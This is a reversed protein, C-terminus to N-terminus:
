EAPPAAVPIPWRRWLVAHWIIVAGIFNLGAIGVWLDALPPPADAPWVASVIGKLVLFYVVTLVVATLLLYWPTQPGKLRAPYAEMLLGATLSAAVVSGAWANVPAGIAHMLLMLLYGGGLTVVTAAAVNALKNTIGALFNGGLIMFGLMQVIVVCLLFDVFELADFPGSGIRLGIAEAAGAPVQGPQDGIMLTWSTLVMYLVTGVVWSTVFAALGGAIPKMGAFPWKGYVFTLQLFVVFVTAALPLTFPFTPLTPATAEATGLVQTFDPNGVVAQGLLTLLLAGVVLVVTNILGGVFRSPTSGPWGGWWLAIVALLPLSFTTIPGYLALNHFAGGVLGLIVFVILVLVLGLLGVAPQNLGSAARPPSSAANTATM